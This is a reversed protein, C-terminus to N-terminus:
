TVTREPEEVGVGADAVASGMASGASNLALKPEAPDSEYHPSMIQVAAENFTDLISSHLASYLAAMRGADSCYCNLEYDVAFDGLSSRHVFPAPEMVIGETRRAAELLLREVERWSVDYGIGVTTHLILGPDRQLSSFNTIESNLVTSNPINILENKVTRLQTSLMRTEVVFGTMDGIRVLDDKRFGRRYLLGYGAIINGIFSSSGISFIVGFFISVGKFAESNSGPIYPYAVILAFALILLRVIRYTPMAWERDFGALPLMGYHVRQFIRRAGGLLFRVLLALILLFMLNPIQELLGTGLDELPDVVLDFVRTAFPRTWPYLGLAANLWTLTITALLVFRLLRLPGQAWAAIQQINFVRRSAEALRQQTMAAQKGVIRNLWGLLKFTLYLLAGAIVTIVVLILTSRLVREASRSVRYQDIANAVRMLVVEALLAVDINEIEADVPFLSFALTDGFYIGVRDDMAQTRGSDAAISEDRAISIIQQRIQEARRDAPFASVGRVQLLTGGDIVVPAVLTRDGRLLLADLAEADEQALVFPPGAVILTFLLALRISNM